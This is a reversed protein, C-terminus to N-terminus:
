DNFSVRPTGNLIDIVELVAHQHPQPLVAVKVKLDKRPKYSVHTEFLLDFNSGLTAKLSDLDADKRLGVSPQPITVTCRSGDPADLTHSGPQNNRHKLATGRLTDKIPDLTANAMRVLTWLLQGIEVQESISKQTTGPRLQSLVVVLNRLTDASTM